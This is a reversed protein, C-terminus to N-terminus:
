KKKRKADRLLANYTEYSLMVCKLAGDEVLYTVGRDQTEAVLDRPIDGAIQHTSTYLAAFQSADMLTKTGGRAASRKPRKEDTSEAPRSEAWQATEMEDVM